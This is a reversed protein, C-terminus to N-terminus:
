SQKKLYGIDRIVRIFLIVLLLKPFFPKIQSVYGLGLGSGQSTLTTVRQHASAPITSVHPKSSANLSM